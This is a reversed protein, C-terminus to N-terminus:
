CPIGSHVLGTLNPQLLHSWERLGWNANKGWQESTQWIKSCQRRLTPCRSSICRVLSHYIPGGESRDSRLDWDEHQQLDSEMNKQDMNINKLYKIIKIQHAKNHKDKALSKNRTWEIETLIDKKSHISKLLKTQEIGWGSQSCWFRRSYLNIRLNQWTAEWLRRFGLPKGPIFSNICGIRCWRSHLVVSSIIPYVVLWSTCSKNWWCYWIFSTTNCDDQQKSSDGKFPVLDMRLDITLNPRQAGGASLCLPKVGKLAIAPPDQHGSHCPYVWRLFM